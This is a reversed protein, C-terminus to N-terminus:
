AIAARDLAALLRRNVRTHAPHWAEIADDSLSAQGDLRSLWRKFRGRYTCNSVEGTLDSGVVRGDLVAIAHVLDDTDLAGQDWNTRIVRDNLVDKDISVYTARSADRMREAWRSLLDSPDRSSVFAHELGVRRAWSVDVGITWYTIRRRYLPRLNNEWAHGWAVDSSTIGVVHVHAVGPLRAVWRVWSGCHIGWPYRMNDPHNDFVVVDIPAAERRRRLLAYTLHHFDGSGLMVTGHPASLPTDLRAALADFARWGCGFRVAQEDARLDIRTASRDADVSADFDLVIPDRTM